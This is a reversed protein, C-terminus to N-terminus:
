IWSRHAWLGHRRGRENLGFANKKVPSIQTILVHKNFLMASSSGLWCLQYGPPGQPLLLRIWGWMRDGTMRSMFATYRSRMLGTTTPPCWHNRLGWAWRWLALLGLLFHHWCISVLAITVYLISDSPDPGSRLISKSATPNSLVQPLSGCRNM